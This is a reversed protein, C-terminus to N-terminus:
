LERCIVTQGNLREKNCKSGMLENDKEEKSRNHHRVSFNLGDIAFESTAIIGISGTNDLIKKKTLFFLAINRSRYRTRRVRFFLFIQSRTISPITVIGLNQCTKM